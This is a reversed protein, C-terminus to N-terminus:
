SSEQHCKMGSFLPQDRGPEFGNSKSERIVSVVVRRVSCDAQLYLHLCPWLLRRCSKAIAVLQAGSEMQLIVLHLGERSLNRTTRTWSPDTLQYHLM